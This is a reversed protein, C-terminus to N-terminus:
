IVGMGNETVGGSSRQLIGILKAFGGVATTPCRSPFPNNSLTYLIFVPAPTQKRHLIIGCLPAQGALTVVQLYLYPM